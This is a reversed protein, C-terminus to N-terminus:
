YLWSSLIFPLSVCNFQDAAEDWESMGEYTLGLNLMSTARMEDIESNPIKKKDALRFTDLKSLIQFLPSDGM